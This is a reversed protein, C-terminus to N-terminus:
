RSAGRLEAAANSFVVRGQDRTLDVIDTQRAHSGMVKCILATCVLKGMTLPPWSLFILRRCIKCTTARVRCASPWPRLM